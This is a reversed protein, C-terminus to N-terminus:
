HMPVKYVVDIGALRATDQAIGLEEDTPIVMVRIRSDPSSIVAEGKVALNAAEDLKIGFASLGACVKSRIDPSNEGIGASFVLADMEGELQMMYAGLYKRVRHVFVQM